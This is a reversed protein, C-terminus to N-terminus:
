FAGSGCCLDAVSGGAPMGLLETVLSAVAESVRSGRVRPCMGLILARLEDADYSKLEAVLECNLAYEGRCERLRADFQEAADGQNEEYGDLCGRAFSLVVEDIGLEGCRCVAERLTTPLPLGDRGKESVRVAYLLYAAAIYPEFPEDGEYIKAIFDDQRM